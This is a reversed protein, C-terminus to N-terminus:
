RVKGPRARGGARLAEGDGAEIRVRGGAASEPVPQHDVDRSVDGLKREIGAVRLGRFQRRAGQLRAGVEARRAIAAGARGRAIVRVAVQERHERDAGFAQLDGGVRRCRDDAKLEM